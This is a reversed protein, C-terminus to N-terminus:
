KAIGNLYLFIPDYFHEKKTNIEIKFLFDNKLGVRLGIIVASHKM